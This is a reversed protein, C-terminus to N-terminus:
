EDTDKMFMERVMIYPWAVIMFTRVGEGIEDYGDEQARAEIMPMIGAMQYGGLIWLVLIIGILITIIM